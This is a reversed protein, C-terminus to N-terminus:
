RGTRRDRLWTRLNSAARTSRDLTLQPQVQKERLLDRKWNEILKRETTSLM